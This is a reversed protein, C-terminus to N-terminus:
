SHIALNRSQRGCNELSQPSFAKFASLGSEGRMREELGSCFRDWNKAVKEKQRVNDRFYCEQLNCKKFLCIERLRLPYQVPGEPMEEAISCLFGDCNEEIRIFSL